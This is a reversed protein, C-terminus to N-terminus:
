HSIFTQIESDIILLESYARNLKLFPWRIPLSQLFFPVLESNCSISECYASIETLLYSVICQIFQFTTPSYVLTQHKRESYEM